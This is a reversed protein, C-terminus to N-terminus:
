RRLWGRERTILWLIAREIALIFPDVIRHLFFQWSAVISAIGLVRVQEGAWRLPRVLFLQGAAAAGDKGAVMMAFGIAMIGVTAYFTLLLVLLRALEHM